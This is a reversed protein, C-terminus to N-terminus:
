VLSLVADRLAVYDELCNYVFCSIRCYFEGQLYVMCSIVNFKEFVDKMLQVNVDEDNRGEGIQYDKLLPLKIVRMFPAEMEKPIELIRTQWGKVLLEVAEDLIRSTFSTIRDLGGLNKEYFEFCEDVVFWSTKDSTGRQYFNYSLDKNYGHSIFCPQMHKVARQKDKFYLLSCGRPALLWKHLNGV